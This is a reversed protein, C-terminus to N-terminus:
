LILRKETREVVERGEFEKKDRAEYIRRVFKEDETEGYRLRHEILLNDAYSYSLYPEMNEKRFWYSYEQGVSEGTM